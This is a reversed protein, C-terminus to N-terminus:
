PFFHAACSKLGRITETSLKKTREFNLYAQLACDLEDIPESTALSEHFRLWRSALGTFSEASTPGVARTNHASPDNLWDRCAGGIESELVPRMTELSLLRLIQLLIGAATRVSQRSVGNQLLHALYEERERLLPASVQVQVDRQRTFIQAILKAVGWAVFGECIWSLHCARPWIQPLRM